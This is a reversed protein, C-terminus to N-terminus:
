EPKLPSLVQTKMFMGAKGLTKWLRGKNEILNWSQENLFSNKQVRFRLKFDRTM